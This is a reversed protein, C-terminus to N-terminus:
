GLWKNDFLKKFKIQNKYLQVTKATMDKSFIYFFTDAYFQKLLAIIPIVVDSQVLSFACLPNHGINM